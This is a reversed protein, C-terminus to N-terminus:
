ARVSVEFSHYYNHTKSNLKKGEYVIRVETGVALPTLQRALNPGLTVIAIGEPTQIRANHNPKGFPNVGFKYDGQYIGILEEGVEEFKYFNPKEGTNAPEVKKWGSSAGTSVPATELTATTEQSASAQPEGTYDEKKVEEKKSWAMNDEQKNNNVKNVHHWFNLIYKNYDAKPL